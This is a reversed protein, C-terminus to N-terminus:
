VAAPVCSLTALLAEDVPASEPQRHQRLYAHLLRGFERLLPAQLQSRSMMPASALTELAADTDGQRHQLRALLIYADRDHAAVALYQQLLTIAQGQTGSRALRHAHFLFLDSAWPIPKFDNAAVLPQLQAIAEQYQATSLLRSLTQQADPKDPRAPPTATAAAEPPPPLAGGRDPSFEDLGRLYWGGAGGMGLLVIIWLIRLIFRM